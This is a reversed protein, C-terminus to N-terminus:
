QLGPFFNAPSLRVGDLSRDARTLLVIDPGKRTPPGTVPHTATVAAEIAMEGQRLPDDFPVALVQGNMLGRLVTHSIYTSVLQPAATTDGQAALLGMAAEIAPASGILYDAEAHDALATEVLALQQRLGTDGGLVARIRLASGELGDRLGAELLVSWGAEQPGSVLIASAPASGAPHRAALYRGVATSMEQWDVGIRVALADSALANVLGIVPREAAVRDVAALLDPHDSSVAGILIADAEHRVCADLQAIQEDRARYGGAEFMLLRADHRSAARELGYGVSLWYEDKFHPVLVCFLPTEGTSDTDARATTLAAWLCLAVISGARAAGYLRVILRVLNSVRSIWISEAMAANAM